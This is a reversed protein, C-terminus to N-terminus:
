GIKVSNLDLKFYVYRTCDERNKLERSRSRYVFLIDIIGLQVEKDDIGDYESIIEAVVNLKMPLVSVLRSICADSAISKSDLNQSKMIETRYNAIKNFCERELKERDTETTNSPPKLYVDIIPRKPKRASGFPIARKLPPSHQRPISHKPEVKKM